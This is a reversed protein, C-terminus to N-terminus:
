TGENESLTPGGWLADRIVDKTIRINGTLKGPLEGESDVALRYEIEEYEVEATVGRAISIWVRDKGDNGYMLM